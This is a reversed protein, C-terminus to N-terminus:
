FIGTRNYLKPLTRYFGIHSSVTMHIAGRDRASYPAGGAREISKEKVKGPSM